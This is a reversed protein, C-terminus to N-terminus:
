IASPVAIAALKSKSTTSSGSIKKRSKMVGSRKRSPQRIGLCPRNRSAAVMRSSDTPSTIKVTSPMPYKMWQSRGVIGNGTANARAAMREGVSGTATDAIVEREGAGFRTICMRSPSLRSLSADPRTQMRKAMAAASVPAKESEAATALKRHSATPPIAIPAARDHSTLWSFDRIEFRKPSSVPV